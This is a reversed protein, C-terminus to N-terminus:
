NYEDLITQKLMECGLVIEAGTMGNIHFNYKGKNGISFACFRKDKLNDLIEQENGELSKNISIIEM